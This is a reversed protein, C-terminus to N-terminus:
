ESVTLYSFVPARKDESPIELLRDVSTKEEKKPFNSMVTIILLVRATTIKM